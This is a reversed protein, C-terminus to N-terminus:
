SQDAPQEVPPAPTFEGTEPNLTGPGYKDNLSKVFEREKEQAEKWQGELGSQQEALVDLQSELVMRNYALQGLQTQINQYVQSNEQLTALEDETFKVTDAM